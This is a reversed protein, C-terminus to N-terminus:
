PAAGGWKKLWADSIEPNCLYLPLAGRCVRSLNEFAADALSADAEATHGIMHPTLVAHELDRLPSDPPLPEVAFTDLAVAAIHGSAVAAVLADDDIM